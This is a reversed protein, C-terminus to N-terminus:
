VARRTAGDRCGLANKRELGADSDVRQFQCCAPQTQLLQCGDSVGQARRQCTGGGLYSVYVRQFRQFFHYTEECDACHARCSPCKLFLRIFVCFLSCDANILSCTQTDPNNGGKHETGVADAHKRHRGRGLNELQLKM